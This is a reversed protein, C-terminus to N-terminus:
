GACNPFRESYKGKEECSRTMMETIQKHRACSSDQNRHVTGTEPFGATKAPFGAASKQREWRSTIYILPTPFSLCASLFRASKRTNETCLSRRWSGACFHFLYKTWKKDNQGSKILLIGTKTKAKQLYQWLLM